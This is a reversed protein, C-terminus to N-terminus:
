RNKFTGISMRGLDVIINSTIHLVDKKRGLRRGPLWDRVPHPEKASRDVSFTKSYWTYGFGEM